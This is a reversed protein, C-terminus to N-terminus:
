VPITSSDYELRMKRQADRGGLRIKGIVSYPRKTTKHDFIRYSDYNVVIFIIRYKPVTGLLSMKKKRRLTEWELFRLCIHQFWSSTIFQHLIIFSPFKRTLQQAVMKIQYMEDTMVIQYPIDTVSIYNCSQRITRNVGLRKPM